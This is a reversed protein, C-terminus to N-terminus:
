GAKQLSALKKVFLRHSHLKFSEFHGNQNLVKSRGQLKVVKWWFLLRQKLILLSTERLINNALLLTVILNQLM